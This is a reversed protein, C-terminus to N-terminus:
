GGKTVFSAKVGAAVLSVTRLYFFLGSDLQLEGQWILPHGQSIYGSALVIVISDEDTDSARVGIECLIDGGGPTGSIVSVSANQLTGSGTGRVASESSGSADTTYEIAAAV